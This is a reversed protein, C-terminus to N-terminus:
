ASAGQPRRLHLGGVLRRPWERLAAVASRVTPARQHEIAWLVLGVATTFSADDLETPLNLASSPAAVRVPCRAQGAAAGALATLKSAGGTLVLGGAPMRDFGAERVRHLIFRVLELSRERLLEHARRRSVLQSGRESVGDVELRAETGDLEAPGLALKVREAVEPSIGLGVALDSTFHRGGIGIASTHVVARDEFVAVGTTEGGIDALVVGRDREDASLVAGASRVANALATVAARDGSVVHTEVALREGSLGVPDHVTRHGDIGYRRPVTHLVVRSLDMEPTSSALLEDVDAHTFDRPQSLGSVRTISAAANISAMHAGTISVYTPPLRSGLAAAADSVSGRVADSLAATDVALGKRMGQSPAHGVAVVEMGTSAVRAVVTAIKTTGVDVGAYLQERSRSM